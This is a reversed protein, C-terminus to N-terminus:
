KGMENRYICIIRRTEELSINNLKVLIKLLQEIVNFGQEIM